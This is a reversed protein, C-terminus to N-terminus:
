ITRSVQNSLTSIRWLTRQFSTAIWVSDQGDHAIGVPYANIPLKSEIKGSTPNIRYVM